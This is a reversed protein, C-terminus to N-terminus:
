RTSSPSFALMDSFVQNDTKFDVFDPMHCRAGDSGCTGDALQEPHAVPPPRPAGDVLSFM